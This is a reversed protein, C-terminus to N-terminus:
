LSQLLLMSYEPNTFFDKHNMVFEELTIPQTKGIQQVVETVEDFKQDRIDESLAPAHGLFQPNNFVAPLQKIGEIWQEDTIPVYKVEKDIIGSIITAIEAMTRSTPGTIVYKEGIHKNPKDDTLIGVIVKAIDSASVGAHKGEDWPLYINGETAITHAAIVLLNEFFLGPRLHVAGIGAWDLFQEALWHQRTSPSDHGKRTIIQSMNVFLSVGEQKAVTSMNASAELLGPVFPYTFYVKKIGKFAIELSAIDLMDGIAIEAGAKELEDIITSRKRSLVRIAIGKELLQKAAHGGTKGTVGTILIETKM